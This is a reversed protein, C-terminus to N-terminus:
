SPRGTKMQTGQLGFESSKQEDHGQPKWALAMEGAVLGREVLHVWVASETAPCPKGKM